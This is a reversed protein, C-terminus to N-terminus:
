ADQCRWTAAVMVGANWLTCSRHTNEHPLRANANSFAVTVGAM